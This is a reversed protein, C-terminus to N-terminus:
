RVGLLDSNEYINGIVEYCETYPYIIFSTLLPWKNPNESHDGIWKFYDFGFGNKDHNVVGVFNGKHEKFIDRCLRLIDGEYIEKGNKDKLGTYQMLIAGCEWQMGSKETFWVKPNRERFFGIKYVDGMIKRNPLWARFKIERM